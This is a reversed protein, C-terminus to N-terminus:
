VSVRSQGAEIRPNDLCKDDSCRQLNCGTKEYLDACPEGGRGPALLLLLPPVILSIKRKTISRRRTHTGGGCSKTCQSWDSWASMICDEAQNICPYENCTKLEWLNGCKKGGNAAGAILERTRKMEGGGCPTDCESWESWDTTVCDVPCPSVFCPATETPGSCEGRAGSIVERRRTMQGEGCAGECPGWPAWDGFECVDECDELHQKCARKELRPNLDCPVGGNTANRMIFRERYRHGEGGTTCNGDCESWNSWDSMLCNM